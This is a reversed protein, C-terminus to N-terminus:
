PEPPGSLGSGPEVNTHRHTDDINRGNHTVEGGTIAVGSGTIAVTVGGVSITVGAGAKISIGGDPLLVIKDGHDTSLGVGGAPLGGMRKSPNAVPLVVMDGEDGGIAIAVATAGDEPAVSTLGFPHLIEVDDRWIGSAVEISARQTEGDDRINKLTVRRTMGRLKNATDQEM